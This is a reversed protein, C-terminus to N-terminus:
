RVLHVIRAVLWDLAGDGASRAHRVAVVEFPDLAVPCAFIDLGFAQAYKAALRAPVTAILDSEATTALAAFFM